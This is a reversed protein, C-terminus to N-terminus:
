MVAVWGVVWGLVRCCALVDLCEGDNSVRHEAGEPGCQRVKM